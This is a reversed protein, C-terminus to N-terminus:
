GLLGGRKDELQTPGGGWDVKKRRAEKKKLKGQQTPVISVLGYAIPM